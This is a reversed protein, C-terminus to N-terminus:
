EDRRAENAAAIEGLARLAASAASFLWMVPFALCALGILTAFGGVIKGTLDEQAALFPGLVINVCAGMSLAAISWQRLERAAALCAESATLQKAATKVDAAM